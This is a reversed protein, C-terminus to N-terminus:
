HSLSSLLSLPTGGGERGGWRVIVIVCGGRKSDEDKDGHGGQEGV